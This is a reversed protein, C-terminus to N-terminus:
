IAQNPHTNLSVPVWLRSCLHHSMAPSLKPMLTPPSLQTRAPKVIEYHVLGYRWAETEEKFIPYLM